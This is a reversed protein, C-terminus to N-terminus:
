WAKPVRGGSLALYLAMLMPTPPQDTHHVLLRWDASRALAALGARHDRLREQYATRLAEARDALLGEEGELGDFRLRGRFPFAEEAPDLVQVLVGRAGADVLGRLRAATEPLPALFDGILVVQAHRPVPAAPPGATATAPARVLAEALRHLAPRGGGAPRARLPDADLLAFGEGARELMVALALALLAAREAKRPVGRASAYDMSGSADAWLWVTQAAEWERERVFVPDARASRRWDISQPRDGAEYRRYQWFTEGIGARRRGHLGQAVAAAVREAEVLLPPLAAALPEARDLAGSASAAPPRDRAHEGPRRDSSPM